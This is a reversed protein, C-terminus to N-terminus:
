PQIKERMEQETIGAAKLVSTLRVKRPNFYNDGLEHKDTRQASIFIRVASARGCELLREIEAENVHFAQSIELRTKKRRAM